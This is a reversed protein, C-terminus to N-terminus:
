LRVTLASGDFRVSQKRTDGAILLDIALPGGMLRSGPVLSLSATRRAQEWRVLLRMYNGRQREFSVGDDDYLESTGDAGPFVVLTLPGDVRESTYQRVPDLPIVAGARV